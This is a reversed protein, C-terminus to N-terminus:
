YLRFEGTSKVLTNGRSDKIVGEVKDQKVKSMIIIFNNAFTPFRYNVDLNLTKILYPKYDNIIDIGFQFSSSRKLVEDLLTFLIGGHILFPYGCLKEGVHIITVTEKEKENIFLYPKIAIGGPVSLTNSSVNGNGNLNQTNSDIYNWARILKYDPDKSLKQYLPLAEAKKELNEKFNIVGEEDIPLKENVLENFISSIPFFQAAVSGAVFSSVIWPFLPRKTRVASSYLRVGKLRLNARFM